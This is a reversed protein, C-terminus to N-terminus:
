QVSAQQCNRFVHPLSLSFSPACSTVEFWMMLFFAWDLALVPSSCRTVDCLRLIGLVLLWLYLNIARSVLQQCLCRLNECRFSRLGTFPLIRSRGNHQFDLYTDPMISLSPIMFCFWSERIHLIFYVSTRVPGLWKQSALNWWIEMSPLWERFYLRLSRESISPIIRFM